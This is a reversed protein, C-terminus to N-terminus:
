SWRRTQKIWLLLVFEPPNAQCYVGVGQAPLNRSLSIAKRLEPDLNSQYSYWNKPQMITQYVKHYASELLFSLLPPLKSSTEYWPSKQFSIFESNVFDELSSLDKFDKYRFHAKWALVRRFEMLEARLVNGDPSQDKLVSEPVQVGDISIPCFNSPDYPKPSIM